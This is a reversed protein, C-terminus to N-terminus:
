ETTTLGIPCSVGTGAVGCYGNPNRKLYQQHYGEAYFWNQDFDGLPKIETTIEGFRSDSLVRQYADRSALAATLQQDDLTFIGSRYQTGIDNGQGMGQTPDHSEWFVRLLDEYTVIKPDFVVLVAEAHGTRGSCAEEYTPNPTFGGAYGAATVIVGPVQWFIREVGWFCGEAFVAIQSGEPFPPTLPQGNVLHHDTVPMKEARGPLADSPQIMQPSRGFFM